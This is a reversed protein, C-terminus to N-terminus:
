HCSRRRRLSPHTCFLEVIGAFRTAIEPFMELVRGVKLAGTGRAITEMHLLHEGKTYGKMKLAGLNAKFISLRYQVSPEIVAAV